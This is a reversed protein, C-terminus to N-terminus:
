EWDSVSRALSSDRLMHVVPAILLLRKTQITYLQSQMHETSIRKKVQRGAWGIRLRGWRLFERIKNEWIEKSIIIIFFFDRLTRCDVHHSEDFAWQGRTYSYTHVNKTCSFRPSWILCSTMCLSQTQIRVVPYSNMIKLEAAIKMRQTLPARRRKPRSISRTHFHPQPSLRSYLYRAFATNHSSNKISLSNHASLTFASVLNPTFRKTSIRITDTKSAAVAVLVLM